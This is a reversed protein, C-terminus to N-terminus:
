DVVTFAMTCPKKGGTSLPTHIIECELEKELVTQLHHKIHGGCCMCYTTSMPEKAGKLCVCSYSEKGDPFFQVQIRGDDLLKVGHGFVYPTQNAKAVREGLSGGEAAIAKSLKERKGGLCCASFERIQRREELPLENDLKEMAHAIWAARKAPTSKETIEGCGEMIRSVKEESVENCLLAEYLSRVKGYPKRGETYYKSIPHKVPQWYDIVVEKRGKAMAEAFRKPHYVEMSYGFSNDPLYITENIGEATLTHADFYLEPEKGKIWGIGMKSPPLLRSDYGEPVPADEPLMMGAIYTFNGTSQDFNGMWGVYSPSIPDSQKLIEFANESFCREWLDPVPNPAGAKITHIVSKGIVRAGHFNRFQLKKLIAM